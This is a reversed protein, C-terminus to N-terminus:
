LLKRDSISLITFDFMQMEVRIFSILDRWVIFLLTVAMLIHLIIYVYPWIFIFIKINQIRLASECMAHRAWPTGRGHRVALLKSNTKGMQNICHPRTHNVSAMGHGHWAGVM